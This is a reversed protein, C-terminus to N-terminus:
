SHDEQEKELLKQVETATLDPWHHATEVEGLIESATLLEINNKSEETLVDDLWKEM